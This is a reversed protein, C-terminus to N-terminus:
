LRPSVVMESESEPNSQLGVGERVFRGLADDLDPLLWGRESGLVSYPPRPAAWGVDRGSCAELASIDVEALEAARAALLHWTTAGANALHWVGREGDILLDLAANVLDPLYTPSFWTDDAAAFARGSALHTLASAVFNQRDWPGFLASTRVVLARPHLDLVRREAAAKARGYKSLPRVPDSEVHPRQLDGGFVLDSSFTLLRLGEAACAGALVAPGTENDRRCAHGNTEAEDVGGGVANIIGWPRFAAVAAAV